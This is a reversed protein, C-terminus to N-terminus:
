RNDEVGKKKKTLGNNHAINKWVPLSPRRRHRRMANFMGEENDERRKLKGGDQRSGRLVEDERRM